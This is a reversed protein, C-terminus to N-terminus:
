KIGFFECAEKLTERWTKATYIGQKEYSCEDGFIHHIIGFDYDISGDYRKNERIAIGIIDRSYTQRMIKVLMFLNQKKFYARIAKYIKIEDETM